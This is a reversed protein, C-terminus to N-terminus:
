LLGERKGGNKRMSAAVEWTHLLPRAYDEDGAKLILTTDDAYQSIFSAARPAPQPPMPVPPM